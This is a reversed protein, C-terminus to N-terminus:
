WSPSGLDLGEIRSFESKFPLTMVHFPCPSKGSPQDILVECAVKRWGLREYYGVMRDICFLLAFDVKWEERLFDTAHRLLLAAHGRRQAGPVTVVGGIGGILVHKGNARAHHKLVGAHSVPANQEDYLLFRRDHPTKARYTLDLHATDFINEGWGFLRHAEEPSLQEVLRVSLAGVNAV